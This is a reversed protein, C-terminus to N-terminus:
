DPHLIKFILHGIQCGIYYGLPVSILLLSHNKM